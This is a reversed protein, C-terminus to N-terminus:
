DNVNTGSPSTKILEDLAAFLSYSDNRWLYEVPHLGIDEPRRWSGGSVVARAADTPGDGGDTALTVLLVDPFGALETVAALALETNRGGRGDGRLTVTTEGGALM